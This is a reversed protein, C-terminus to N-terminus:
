TVNILDSLPIAGLSTFLWEEPATTVYSYCSMHPRIFTRDNELYQSLISANTAIGERVIRLRSIGSGM